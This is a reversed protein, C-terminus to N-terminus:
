PMEEGDGEGEDEEEQFFIDLTDWDLGLRGFYATAGDFDEEKVEICSTGNEDEVIRADIGGTCLNEAWTDPVLANVYIRKWQLTDGADAKRGEIWAEIPVEFRGGQGFPWKAVYEFKFDQYNAKAVDLPAKELLIALALQAPGSGGYGWNFGTPSHNRVKLSRDPTLLKGDIRVIENAADLEVVTLAGTATTGTWVRAPIGDLEVIKTTSEITAKM